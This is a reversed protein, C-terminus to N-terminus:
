ATASSANLELSLRWDSARRVLLLCVSSPQRRSSAMWKLGREWFCTFRHIETRMPSISCRQLPQRVVINSSSISSRLPSTGATATWCSTFRQTAMTTWRKGFPAQGHSSSNSFAITLLLLCTSTLGHALFASVLRPSPYDCLLEEELLSVGKADRLNILRALTEAGITQSLFRFLPEIWPVDDALEERLDFLFSRARRDLALPDVAPCHKFLTPINSENARRAACHLITSGTKSVQALLRSRTAADLLGLVYEFVPPHAILSHLASTGDAALLTLDAKHEVLVKAADVSACFFLPSRGDTDQANVQAGAAILARAIAAGNTEASVASFLPTQEMGGKVSADAKHKLLLSVISLHGRRAARHLATDLNADAATVSCGANLLWQVVEIHGAEVASFLPRYAELYRELYNCQELTKLDGARVAAFFQKHSIVKASELFSTVASKMAHNPVLNLHELRKGTLPSTNHKSDFWESIARREYTHGDATFVPNEFIDSTISCCLGEPVNVLPM